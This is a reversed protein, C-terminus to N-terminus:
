RDRYKRKLQPWGCERVGRQYAAAYPGELSATSEGSRMKSAIQDFQQQIKECKTPEAM